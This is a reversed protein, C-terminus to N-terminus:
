EPIKYPELQISNLQMGFLVLIGQYRQDGTSTFEFQYTRRLSLSGGSSRQPWIGCIVMSQDLLQLQLQQCHSIALQRARGKFIGSRWWYAALVGILLLWPITNV